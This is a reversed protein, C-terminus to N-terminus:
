FELVGTSARDRVLVSEGGGQIGLNEVLVDDLAVGDTGDTQEGGLRKQLTEFDVFLDFDRGVAADARVDLELSDAFEQRATVAFDEELDVGDRADDLNLISFNEFGGLARRAGGGSALLAVREVGTGDARRHGAGDDLDEDTRTLLDGGALGDDHEARHLHFCGDGRGHSARALVDADDRAVRAGGAVQHAGDVGGGSPGSAFSRVVGVCM